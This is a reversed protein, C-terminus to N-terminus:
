HTSDEPHGIHLTHQPRNWSGLDVSFRTGVEQTKETLKNELPTGLGCVSIKHTGQSRPSQPWYSKLATSLIQTNNLSKGGWVEPCREM